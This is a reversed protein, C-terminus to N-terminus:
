VAMLACVARHYGALCALYSVPQCSGQQALFTSNRIAGTATCVHIEAVVTCVDVAAVIPVIIEIIGALCALSSTSEAVVVALASGAIGCSSEVHPSVHLAEM